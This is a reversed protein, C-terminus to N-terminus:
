NRKSYEAHTGAWQVLVVGASYSIKVELRYRNGKVNFIAVNGPLFSVSPYRGKINHTTKWSSNEVDAVWAGIWERADAHINVFKTLVPRGVLKM